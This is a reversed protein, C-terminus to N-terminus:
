ECYLRLGGDVSRGNRHLCLQQMGFSPHVIPTIFTLETGINVNLVVQKTSCGQIKSIMNDGQSTNGPSDLSVKVLLLLILTLLIM